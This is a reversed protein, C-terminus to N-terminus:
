KGLESTLNTFVLVFNSSRRLSNQEQRIYEWSAKRDREIMWPYSSDLLSLFGDVNEKYEEAFQEAANVKQDEALNEVGYLVHDLNCSFYYVAYDMKM